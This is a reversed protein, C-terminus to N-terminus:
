KGGIWLFGVGGDNTVKMQLYQTAGDGGFILENLIQAKKIFLQQSSFYALKNDDTDECFSLMSQTLKM